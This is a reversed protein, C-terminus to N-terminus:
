RLVARRLPSTSGRSRDRSSRARCRPCRSGRAPRVRRRPRQRSVPPRRAEQRAPHGVRDAHGLPHRGDADCLASPELQGGPVVPSGRHPDVYPAHDLQVGSGLDRRSDQVRTGACALDTGPHGGSGDLTEASGQPGQRGAFRAPSPARLPGCRAYGISRLSALRRQRLLNRSRRRRAQSVHHCRCRGAASRGAAPM